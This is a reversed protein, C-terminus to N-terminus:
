SSRFSRKAAVGGKVPAKGAGTVDKVLEILTARKAGEGLRLKSASAGSFLVIDGATRLGEACTPVIMQGRGAIIGALAARLSLGQLDNQFPTAREVRRYRGRARVCRDWLASRPRGMRAASGSTPSTEVESSMVVTSDYQVGM